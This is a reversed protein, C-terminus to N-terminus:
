NADVQVLPEPADIETSPGLDTATAFTDQSSQELLLAALSPGSSSTESFSVSLMANLAAETGSRRKKDAILTTTSLSLVFEEHVPYSTIEGYAFRDNEYVKEIKVDFPTGRRGVEFSLVAHVAEPAADPHLCEFKVVWQGKSYRKTDLLGLCWKDAREAVWFSVRWIRGHVIFDVTVTRGLLMRQYFRPMNLVVDMGDDRRVVTAADPPGSGLLMRDALPLLERCISNFLSSANMVLCARRLDATVAARLPAAHRLLLIVLEPARGNLVAWHLPSHGALSAEQLINSFSVGHTACGQACYRVVELELPLDQERPKVIDHIISTVSQKVEKTRATAM